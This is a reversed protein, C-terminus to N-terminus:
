SRSRPEPWFDPDLLQEPTFPCPSPIGDASERYKRLGSVAEEAGFKYAEDILAPLIAELSPSDKMILAIARRALRVSRRWGSRPYPSPSYALKLLHEILKILHSVVARRDTKGLSEVEEALNELDLRLNTRQVAAHRLEAAQQQTWLYFDREYLGPDALETTM